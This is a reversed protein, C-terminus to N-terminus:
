KRSAENCWQKTRARSTMSTSSSLPRKNPLPVSVAQPHPPYSLPASPFFLCIHRGVKGRAQSNLLPFSVLLWELAVRQGKLSYKRLIYFGDEGQFGSSRLCYFPSKLLFSTQIHKWAAARALLLLHRWPGTSVMLGTGIARKSM